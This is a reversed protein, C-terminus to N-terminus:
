EDKIGEAIAILQELPMESVAILAQSRQDVKQETKISFEPFLKTLQSLAQVRDSGDEQAIQWLRARVQDADVDIRALSRAQLETVRLAVKSNDLLRSAAVHIAPLSTNEADYAFRYAESANGTEVYKHAFKEQKPTLPRPL